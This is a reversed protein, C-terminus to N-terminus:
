RAEQRHDLGSFDVKHDHKVFWIRLHDEDAEVTLAGDYLAVSDEQELHTRLARAASSSAKGIEALNTPLPVEYVVKTETIEYHTFTAM